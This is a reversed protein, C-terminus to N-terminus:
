ATARKSVVNEVHASNTAKTSGENKARVSDAIREFVRVRAQEVEQPLCNLLLAIDKDSYRELISMVLVFREFDPLSLIQNATMAASESIKQFPHFSPVRSQLPFPNVLHIAQKIVVRKAWLLAWERFVPNSRSTTELGSIMSEHAHAHSGTLLFALQYLQNMKDLFLSQFDDANAYDNRHNFEVKM